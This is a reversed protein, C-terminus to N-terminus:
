VGSGDDPDPDAPTESGERRAEVSSVPRAQGYHGPDLLADALDHM